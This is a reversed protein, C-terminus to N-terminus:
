RARNPRLLLEAEARAAVRRLAERKLEVVVPKARRSRVVGGTPTVSWTGGPLGLRLVRPTTQGTQAGDLVAEVEQGKYLRTIGMEALFSPEVPVDGSFGPLQLAGRGTRQDFWKVV